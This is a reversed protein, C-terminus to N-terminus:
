PLFPTSSVIGGTVSITATAVQHTAIINGTMLLGGATVFGCITLIM